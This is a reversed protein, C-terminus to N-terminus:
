KKELLGAKDLVIAIDQRKMFGQPNDILGDNNGEAFVGSTIGKKASKLAYGSVPKSSLRNTIREILQDVQEDTLKSIDMEDVESRNQLREKFNLWMENGTKNYYKNVDDGVFPRPCLKHTVDYHRIINDLPIDYKDMLMWVLQLTNVITEEQFYWDDDTDKLSTKDLKTPRVEIGLSNSNRCANYYVPSGCHWAVDKDEVSQYIVPGEDINYHASAKVYYDRFYKTVNLATGLDGFFHIVIFAIRSTSERYQVNKSTLIKKIEITM